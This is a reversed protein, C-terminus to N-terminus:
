GLALRRRLRDTALGPLRLLLLPVAVPEFRALAAFMHPWRRDFPSRLFVRAMRLAEERRLRVLDPDGPHVEAYAAFMELYADLLAARARGPPPPWGLLIATLCAVDEKSISFHPLEQRITRHAITPAERRMADSRVDTLGGRRVRYSVLPEAINAGKTIRLLRTWLDYDETACFSPDYRLSHGTLLVSRVMVTPHLFPNTTLSTWRVGLDSLPVEFWGCRRGASDIIWCESGFIGIDPHNDLFAVQKELRDAAALDDADLRALYEGRAASLGRNLTEAIGLNRDNRLVRLRPDSYSELMAPTSDTSCDDVVLLELDSLTQALISDVAGRLYPEANYAPMLVTVRPM